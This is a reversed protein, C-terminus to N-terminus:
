KKNNKVSDFGVQYSIVRYHNIICEQTLTHTHTLTHTSSIKISLTHWGPAIRKMPPADFTDCLFQM